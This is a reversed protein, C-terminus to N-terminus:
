YQSIRLYVYREKKRGNLKITLLAINPLTAQELVAESLLAPM